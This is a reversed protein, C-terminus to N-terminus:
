YTIKECNVSIAGTTNGIFVNITHGGAWEPLSEYQEVQYGWLKAAKLEDVILMLQRATFKPWSDWYFATYEITILKLPTGTQPDNLFTASKIYRSEHPGTYAEILCYAM